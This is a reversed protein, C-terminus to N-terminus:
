FVRQFIAKILNKYAELMLVSSNSNLKLDRAEQFYVKNKDSILNVTEVLQIIWHPKFWTKM